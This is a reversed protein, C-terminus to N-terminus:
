PPLLPPPPPPVPAPPPPRQGRRRLAVVAAVCGTWLPIMDAVPILKIVFTPLLLVHFGLAWCTLIMAIVDLTDDVFTWGVPGLLLGLLFQAADTVLAVIIAFWIRKRTLQPIALLPRM